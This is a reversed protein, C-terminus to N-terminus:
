YDVFEARSINGDNNSATGEFHGLFDAIIEGETKLGSIVDPHDKATYFAKIDDFTIIGSGNRDMLEFCRSVM